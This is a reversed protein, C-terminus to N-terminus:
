NAKINFNINHTKTFLNILDKKHPNSDWFMENKYFKLFYCNENLWSIKKDINVFM